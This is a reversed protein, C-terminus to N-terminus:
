RLIVAPADVFRPCSKAYPCTGEEKSHCICQKKIYLRLGSTDHYEYDYKVPFLDTYQNKNCYAESYDIIEYPM